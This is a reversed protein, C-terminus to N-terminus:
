QGAAIQKKVEYVILRGDRQRVEAHNGRSTIAWLVALVDTGQEPTPRRRKRTEEMKRGGERM